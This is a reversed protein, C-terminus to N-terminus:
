ASAPKWKGAMIKELWFAGVITKVDTVSGDRVWDLLDSVPVKMTEIFEEDDLHSEGEILDRALFLALFEDSYGLANHFECVYQWSRATYGTEEQLERQACALMTEGADIKGAPFELVARRIPYRFQRELLVTGDEFLPLIVVAGPHRVFERSTTQGNPLRVRDRQIQLFSGEFVTGGEIRTEELEPYIAGSRASKTHTM